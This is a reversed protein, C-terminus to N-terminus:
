QKKHLLKPLIFFILFVIYQYKLEIYVSKKNNIYISHNNSIRQIELTPYVYYLYQATM